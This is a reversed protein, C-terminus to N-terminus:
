RLNPGNKVLGANNLSEVVIFIKLIARSFKNKAAHFANKDGTCFQARLLHM